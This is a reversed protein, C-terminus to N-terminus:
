KRGQSSFREVQAIAHSFPRNETLLNLLNLPTLSFFRSLGSLRSIFKERNCLNFDKLRAGHWLNPEGNKDFQMLPFISKM